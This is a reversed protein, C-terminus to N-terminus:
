EKTATNDLEKLAQVVDDAHRSIALEHHFVRFIVGDRDIVFTARRIPALGFTWGRRVGFLAGVAGDPDAILPFPIQNAERFRRHSEASDPSVGVLVAGLSM